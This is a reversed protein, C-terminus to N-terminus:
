VGTQQPGWIHKHLQTQLRVHLKDQVIKEALNKLNDGGFAPSFLVHCKQDLSYKEVINCAWLYDNQDCIVFKIEDDHKLHAFNLFAKNAVEGSGPTKVDMVIKAIPSYNSIDEEGDTEISVKLGANVLARVLEISKKQALPEGGTLCVWKTKHTLVEELIQPITMWQGGTYSYTTDCYNCRLPCGTLRVFTTREGVLTSEGQISHFIETVKLRTQNAELEM